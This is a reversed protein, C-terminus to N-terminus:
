KTIFIKLYYLLSFFIVVFPYNIDLSHINWLLKDTLPHIIFYGLLSQINMSTHGLSNPRFLIGGVTLEIYVIFIITVIFIYLFYNM